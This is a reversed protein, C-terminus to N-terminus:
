RRRAPDAFETRNARPLRQRGGCGPSRAEPVAVVGAIWRAPSIYRDGKWYGSRQKQVADGPYDTERLPRQFDVSSRVEDAKFAVIIWVGQRRYLLDIQGSDFGQRALGCFVEHLRWEALALGEVLDIDRLLDM